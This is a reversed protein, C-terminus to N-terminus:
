SGQRGTTESGTLAARQAATGGGGARLDDAPDLTEEMSEALAAVDRSVNDLTEVVRASEFSATGAEASKIRVVQAAVTDLTLEVNTLQADIRERRASLESMVRTKEQLQELARGYRERAVGDQAAALRKELAAGDAPLRRADSQQLHHEIDQLKRALDVAATTVAAVREVTSQLMPKELEGASAIDARIQRQKDLCRQARELYPPWLGILSPEVAAPAASLRQRWRGWRLWTLIGYALVGPVLIVTFPTAAAAVGAAALVTLGEPSLFTSLPPSPRGGQASGPRPVPKAM